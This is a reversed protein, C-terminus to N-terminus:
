RLAAPILLCTEESGPKFVCREECGATGVDYLFSDFSLFKARAGTLGLSHSFQM